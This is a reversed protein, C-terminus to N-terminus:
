RTKIRSPTMSSRWDETAGCWFRLPDQTPFYGPYYRLSEAMDAQDPPPAIGLGLCLHALSRAFQQHHGPYGVHAHAYEHAVALLWDKPMMRGVDILISIPNTQFNCLADLGFSQALPTAFIQVTPREWPHFCDHCIQLCTNLQTNIAEIQEGIWICIPIRQELDHVLDVMEPELALSRVGYLYDLGWTFPDHSTTVILSKV